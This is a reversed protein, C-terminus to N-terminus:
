TVDAAIADPDLTTSYDGTRADFLGLAGPLTDAIIAPSVEDTILDFYTEPDAAIEFADPPQAIRDTYDINFYSSSLTLGEIRAPAFDFGM